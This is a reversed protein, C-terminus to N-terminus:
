HKGNVNAAQASGQVAIFRVCKCFAQMLNRFLQVVHQFINVLNFNKCAVVAAAQVCEEKAAAQIIGNGKFACQFQLFDAINM